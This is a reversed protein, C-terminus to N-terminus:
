YRIDLVSFYTYRAFTFTFPKGEANNNRIRSTLMLDRGTRLAVRSGINGFLSGLSLLNFSKMQSAM